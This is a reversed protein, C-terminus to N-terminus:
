RHPPHCSHLIVLAGAEHYIGILRQLQPRIFRRWMEPTFNLGSNMGYDDDIWAAEVGLKLYYQAIKAEFDGICAFLGDVREPSDKMSSLLNQMGALLWARQYLAFPHEGILLRNSLHRVNILDAFLTPDSSDPSKLQTWRDPESEFPHEIPFPLMTPDASEKQWGVGWLDRWIPAGPPRTDAPRGGWYCLKQIPWDLKCPLLAGKQCRMTAILEEKPFIEAMLRM